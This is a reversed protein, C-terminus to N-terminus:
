QDLDELGMELALDLEGLDRERAVELQHAQESEADKMGWAVDLLGVESRMVLNALEGVVDRYSAAMTDAVVTQTSGNVADMETRYQTLNARETVLVAIAGKLRSGATRDLGGRAKDGRVALAGARKWVTLAEPDDGVKALAAHMTALHQRYNALAARRAAVLPNSFRLTHRTRAVRKRLAEAERELQGITTRMEAAQTLFAEHDIKQDGRTEEYYRETAVLQARQAAVTIELKHAKQELRLTKRVQAAMGDGQAGLPADVKRRLALRQNELSDVTTGKARNFLRRVLDEQIEVLDSEVNDLSAVHAALDTFLRAKDEVRVAQEMQALMSMVDALERDLTGVERALAEGHAARPLARAVPVAAAPLISDLAFHQMDEGIVAAFYATADGQADLKRGVRRALRDFERRLALFQEEAGQYDRQQIRVKGRLQKIEPIVPSDPDYVILLDLAKVAQDYQKAALLTWATEYMAESFFPSDRGIRRYAGVADDTLDQDHFIRGIAMWSLEVIRRDRPDIPRAKTVRSFRDLAEETEDMGLTAAAAVYAARVRWKAGEGGRSIPIDLPSMADLESVAQAYRKTMFLYRGFAYRLEPERTREPFSQAWKLLREADDPRLDGTPPASDVKVGVAALRARVEPTASLGPREAFGPDRRPVALDFLRAVAKQRYRAAGPRTDGLIKSFMEAAWRGMGLKALAEGLHFGAAPAGRSTPHNEVIDLFLIASGEYDGDALRLQGAVLRKALDAESPKPEKAAAREAGVVSTEAERIRDLLDSLEVKKRRSPAAESDGPWLATTGGVGVGLALTVLVPLYSAAGLRRRVVTPDMPSTRTM